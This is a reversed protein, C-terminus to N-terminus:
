RRTPTRGVLKDMQGLLMRRYNPGLADLKGQLRRCFETVADYDRARLKKSLEQLSDRNVVDATSLEFHLNPLQVVRKCSDQLMQVLEAHNERDYDTRLMEVGLTLQELLFKSSLIYQRKNKELSPDYLYEALVRESTTKVVSKALQGPEPVGKLAIAGGSEDTERPAPQRQVVGPKDPAIRLVATDEDADHEEDPGEGDGSDAQTEAPRNGGEKHTGGQEQAADRGDRLAERPLPPPTDPGDDAKEPPQESQKEDNAKIEFVPEDETEPRARRDPEASDVTKQEPKPSDAGKGGSPAKEAAAAPPQPKGDQQTLGHKKDAQTRPQTAAGSRAEPGAKRGASRQAQREAAPQETPKDAHAHAPQAKAARHDGIQKPLPPPTESEATPGAHRSADHDSQQKVTSQKASPPKDAHAQTPQPKSAPQDAAQKPLPPPTESEAAPVAHRSAAQDSQGEGTSQEASASRDPGAEVPNPKSVQQDTIQKPLPPPTGAKGRKDIDQVAREPAAASTDHSNADSAAQPRMDSQAPKAESAKEGLVGARQKEPTSVIDHLAGLVERENATLERSIKAAATALENERQHLKALREKLEAMASACEEVQKRIAALEKDSRQKESLLSRSEDGVRVVREERTRLAAMKGEYHRILEDVIANSASQAEKKLAWLRELSHRANDLEGALLKEAIDYLTNTFNAGRADVQISYYGNADHATGTTVVFEETRNANREQM